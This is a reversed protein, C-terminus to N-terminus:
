LRIQEALNGFEEDTPDIFEEDRNDVSDPNWVEIKNLMGIIVVQDDLGAMEILPAPIMIRGQKDYKTPTAWRVINRIFTREKQKLFTLGRLSDEIREWEELPYVWVCEDLGRTIVFTEDSDPSLSQRFKSPVNIRGKSDISYRYEGIFTNTRSAM